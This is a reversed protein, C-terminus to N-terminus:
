GLGIRILCDEVEGLSDQAAMREAYSTLQRIAEAYTALWALGHAARQERDMLKAVTHGEVVVRERVKLVADALLADVASVAERALEVLQRAPNTRREALPM